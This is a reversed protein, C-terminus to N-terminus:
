ENVTLTYTGLTNRLMVSAAEIKEVRQGRVTEDIGCIYTKGSDDELIALPQKKLLVGKLSLKVQNEPSPLAAGKKVPAAFAEAITKFPSDFNGKYQVVTVIPHFKLASDALAVADSFAKDGAISAAPLKSFHGTLLRAAIFGNFLWVLVACFILILTVIRSGNM